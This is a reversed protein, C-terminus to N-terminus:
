RMVRLLRREFSEKIKERAADVDNNDIFMEHVYLVKRDDSIDLGFSGPTLTILNTLLTIEARTRAELPVAIIGPRMRPRPSMVDYAVRANALTLELLFFALFFTIKAIKIPIQWLIRL